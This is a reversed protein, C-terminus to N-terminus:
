KGYRGTPDIKRKMKNLKSDQMPNRGDNVKKGSEDRPGGGVKIGRPVNRTAAGSPPTTSIVKRERPRPMGRPDADDKGAGKDAPKKTNKDSSVRQSPPQNFDPREPPQKEHPQQRKKASSANKSPPQNFDPQGAPRRMGYPNADDRNNNNAM